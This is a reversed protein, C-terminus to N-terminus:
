HNCYVPFGYKRFITEISELQSEEPTGWDKFHDVRGLKEYKHKSLNNFPLLHVVGRYGATHLFAAIASVSDGDANFGPILPIRPIIKENGYGTIIKRFNNLIKEPPVGTAEEHKKPDICKIDFLFLDTVPALEPLLTEPFFGCTEVATHFGKARLKILTDLLFDKQVTPEGGSITVGGGSETYFFVDREALAAVEGSSLISGIKEIAGGPCGAACEGCGKCLSFDRLLVKKVFSLAKERCSGVCKGCGTCKHVLYVFEGAPNQSEPNHCWSCRLPCGKFFICTRIGPGDFIAYHQIDFVVGQKETRDGTHM